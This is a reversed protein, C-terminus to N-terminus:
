HVSDLMRRIREQPNEYKSGMIKADELTRIKSYFLSYVIGGIVM